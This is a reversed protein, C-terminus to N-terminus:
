SALATCLDCLSSTWPISSRFSSWSWRFSAYISVCMSNTAIAIFARILDISGIMKGRVWGRCLSEQM